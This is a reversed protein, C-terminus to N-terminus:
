ENDRLKRFYKASNIKKNAGIRYKKLENIDLKKNTKQWDNFDLIVVRPKNYTYVVTPKSTNEVFELVKRTKQKLESSTIKKYM